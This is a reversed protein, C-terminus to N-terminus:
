LAKSLVSFLSTNRYKRSVWQFIFLPDSGVNGILLIRMKNWQFKPNKSSKIISYFGSEVKKKKKLFLLRAPGLFRLVHRPVEGKGQVDWPKRNQNMKIRLTVTGVYFTWCMLDCSFCSILASIGLLLMWSNFFGCIIGTNGLGPFM